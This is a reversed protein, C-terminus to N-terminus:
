LHEPVNAVKTGHGGTTTLERHLELVIVLARLVNSICDDFFYLFAILTLVLTLQDIPGCRRSYIRGCVGVYALVASHFGVSGFGNSGLGFIIEEPKKKALCITMQEGFSAQGSLSEFRSITKMNLQFGRVLATPAM